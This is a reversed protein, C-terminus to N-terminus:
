PIYLRVQKKPVLTDHNFYKGGCILVDIEEPPNNEQHKPGNHWENATGNGHGNLVENSERDLVREHGEREVGMTGDYLAPWGPLEDVGMATGMKTTLRLAQDSPVYHARTGKEGDTYYREDAWAPPADTAVREKFGQAWTLPPQNRAM